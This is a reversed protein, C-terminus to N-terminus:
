EENLVKLLRNLAEQIDEDKRIPRAHVDGNTIRIDFRVANSLMPAPVVSVIHLPNIHVCEEIRVLRSTTM